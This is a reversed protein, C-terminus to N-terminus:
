HRLRGSDLRAQLRRNAEVICAVLEPDRDRNIDLRQRNTQDGPRDAQYCWWYTLPVGAEVVDHLTKVFWPKAASV